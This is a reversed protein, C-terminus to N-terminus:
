WWREYRVDAEPVGESVALKSLEDIMPPPGCLYVRPRAPVLTAGTKPDSRAGYESMSAVASAVDRAGFRGRRGTWRVGDGTM